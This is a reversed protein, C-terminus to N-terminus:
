VRRAIFDNVTPPGARNTVLSLKLRARVGQRPRLLCIYPLCGLCEAGYLVDTLFGAIVAGAPVPTDAEGVCAICLHALALPLACRTSRQRRRSRSVVCSLM